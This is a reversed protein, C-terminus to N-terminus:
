FGKKDRQQWELYREALFKMGKIRYEPTSVTFHDGPFYEFQMKADMTKMEKELLHVARNLLFNDQEGVTVRIKGELDNKLAAWDSRLYLSIDYKKWHEFVNKNIAGTVPNCIQEPEDESGRASFVADFSHMQEGRSIVYEMQYVQKMNAWPIRGAVTAVNRLISDKSYYLNEDEYLNIEQFSRFDVPDPSSSWCGDFIKPYHTQLWLVTWGGSSHGRLFKAGNCRYKTELAPIFEKTLADGWPGNNDSNAYVSHGLPCNGDLFVTICPVTDIGRSRTATDGSYFHYDGGYGSVLFVVPFKKASETYYEKPLIVAADVTVQQHHFSSLLASTVKLEKVFQTEKFVPEPILQDCKITFIRSVDKTIVVRSSKNYINGPSASISRGGLNRDWVAQVFYEGREVDSLKVPYSVAKDNIVISSGPQVNKVNVSFCPFFDIGVSGDKPDKYNKSLYLFLKGTFPKDFVAPSYSVKFQQPFGALYIFFLSFLLVAKKM